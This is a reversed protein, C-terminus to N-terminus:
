LQSRPVTSTRSVRLSTGAPTGPQAFRIKAVIVASGAAAFAMNAPYESAGTVQQGPGGEFDATMLLPVAAQRQLRDGALLRGDFGLPRGAGGSLGVQQRVQRAAELRQIRLEHRM